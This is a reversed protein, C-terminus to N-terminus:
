FCIWLGVRGYSISPQDAKQRAAPIHTHGSFRPKRHDLVVQPNFRGITCERMQNKTTIQGLSM